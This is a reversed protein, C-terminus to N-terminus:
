HQKRFNVNLSELWEYIANKDEETLSTSPHLITYAKIPMAEAETVEGIEELKHLAKKEGYNKFDSFNLEGKGERIHYNLWWGVPQINFYWPYNTHNSHCDYCKKVMMDHVQEPVPYTKSIDDSTILEPSTNRSPRFFQILLFALGVIILIKRVM